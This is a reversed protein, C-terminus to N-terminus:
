PRSALAIPVQCRAPRHHCRHHAARRPGAVGHGRAAASITTVCGEGTMPAQPTRARDSTRMWGAPEEMGWAVRSGHAEAGGPLLASLGPRARMPARRWRLGTQRVHDLIRRPFPRIRCPSAGFPQDHPHCAETIASRTRGSDDSRCHACRIPSRPRPPSRLQAVSAMILSGARFGVFRSPFRAWRSILGSLGGGPPAARGVPLGRAQGARQATGGPPGGSWSCCGDRM